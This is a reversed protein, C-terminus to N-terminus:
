CRRPPSPHFGSPESTIRLASSSNGRTRFEHWDVSVVVAKSCKRMVSGSVVLKLPCGNALCAPWPIAIQLQIRPPLDTETRFSVAKSSVDILSGVGHLKAVGNYPVIQFSIECNLPFRLKSRRETFLPTDEYPTVASGLPLGSSTGTVATPRLIHPGAPHRAGPRIRKSVAVVDLVSTQDMSFKRFPWYPDSRAPRVALKCIQLPDASSSSSTFEDKTIRTHAPPSRSPHLLLRSDYEPDDPM